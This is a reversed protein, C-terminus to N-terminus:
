IRLRRTQSAPIDPSSTNWRRPFMPLDRSLLSTETDLSYPQQLSPPVIGGFLGVTSIAEILAFRCVEGLYQGSVLYELPQFDPRPHGAKLATDWKTLPLIDRGFMGLESNVILHSAEDFWSQPRSKFKSTSILPLPLYAALNVGTGLILGFRTPASLYAESLLCATSDNIITALEVNLGIKRCATEIVEGLDEGVLADAAKFSKGMSQLLGGKLSTQEVPFSWAMSMPIPNEPSHERNIDSSITEL